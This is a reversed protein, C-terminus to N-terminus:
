LIIEHLDWFQSKNEVRTKKHLHWKCIGEEGIFNAGRNIVDSKTHCLAMVLAAALLTRSFKTRTRFNAVLIQILLNAFWKQGGNVQFKQGILTVLVSCIYGVFIYLCFAQITSISLNLKICIDPIKRQWVCKM